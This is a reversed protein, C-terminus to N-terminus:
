AEKALRPGEQEVTKLKEMLIGIAEKLAQRPTLSGDTEVTLIFADKEETLDVNQLDFRDKAARLYDYARVEDIIRIRGGDEVAISDRPALRALESASSAPVNGRVSVHPVERYGIAVAAAWKAHDQGRGLIAAAELMVRQNELLKVVPIDPDPIAFKPDAPTLDGSVVMGPGEKSLTYLVTCSPCGEGKCVCQARFNFLGPETPVPLLGLRHALIEDFLASTNDYITVDEIALRAVDALVTRRLANLFAYDVGRVLAVLRRPTNERVEMEM